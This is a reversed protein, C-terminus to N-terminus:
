VILPLYEANDWKSKAEAPIMVCLLYGAGEKPRHPQDRDSEQGDTIAVHDRVGVTTFPHTKQCADHYTYDLWVKGCCCNAVLYSLVAQCDQRIDFSHTYLYYHIASWM